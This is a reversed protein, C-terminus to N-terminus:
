MFQHVVWGFVLAFLPKLIAVVVALGFVEWGDREDKNTSTQHTLYGMAMAIGIAAPISLQPLNFTPVMFWDWLVSLVYGSWISSFALLLPIGLVGGLIALGVM